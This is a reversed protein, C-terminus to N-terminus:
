NRNTRIWESIPGRSILRGYLVLKGLVFPVLVFLSRPPLADRGFCLWALGASFALLAIGACSFFFPLHSLGLAAGLATSAAVAITLLGLLGLPPVAMDLTLVLLPWNRRAIARVVLAPAMSIMAIHGHEWRQRQSAVGTASQPFESTVVASPCFLPPWGGATLELGLKLDEVIHGSALDATRIIDWPFAMGTGMLQCPLGLAKLGLPRVWNKMRWAFESIQYSVSSGPPATMINLAQVPRNANASVTALKELSGDVLRCDADIVIVVAPPDARLHRIGWDLAYGKGIRSLDNREIVEAGAARAIAVTDDSCNDAVVLLRDAARLQAQIARLTPLLGASENHAPVLVAFRPRHGIPILFAQRHRLLAAAVVEVLLLAALIALVGSLIGLLCSVPATAWEAMWAM